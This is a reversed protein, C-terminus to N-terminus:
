FFWFIRSFSPNTLGLGGVRRDLKKKKKSVIPFMFVVCFVCCKWFFNFDSNPSSGGVWKRTKRPNKSKKLKVFGRVLSHLFWHVNHVCYMKIVNTCRRVLTSSTPDINYLHTQQSTYLYLDIIYEGIGWYGTYLLRVTVLRWLEM